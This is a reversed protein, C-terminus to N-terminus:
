LGVRTKYLLKKLILGIHGILALLVAPVSVLAGVLLVRSFDTLIPNIEDILAAANIGLLGIAIYATIVVPISGHAAVKFDHGSPLTHLTISVLVYLLAWDIVDAQTYFRGLDFLMPSEPSYMLKLVAPSLLYIAVFGTLLPGLSVVVKGLSGFLSLPYSYNVYGLTRTGPTPRIFLKMDLVKFGMLKCMLYHGFEHTPVGIIGTVYLFGRAFPSYDMILRFLYILTVTFLFDMM